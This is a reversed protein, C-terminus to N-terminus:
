FSVELNELTLVFVLEFKVMFSALFLLWESKGDIEYIVKDFM